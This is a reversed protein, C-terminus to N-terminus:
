LIDVDGSILMWRRETNSETVSQFNNFWYIMFQLGKGREFFGCKEIKNGLPKACSCILVKKDSGISLCIILSFLLKVIRTDDVPFIDLVHIYKEEYRLIIYGCLKESEYLGYAINHHQPKHLFKWNLYSPSRQICCTSGSVYKNFLKQFRDDFFDIPEIRADKNFIKRLIQNFNYLFTMPSVIKKLINPIIRSEFDTFQILRKYTELHAENKWGFNVFGSYSKGNDEPFAILAEVTSNELCDISAQYMARFLGRRRFERLVMLDGAQMCLVKRGEITIFLPFLSWSGCIIDKKKDRSLWVRAKGAPNDLYKWKFEAETMQGPYVERFLNLVQKKMSGSAEFIEFAMLDKGKDDFKESTIATHM